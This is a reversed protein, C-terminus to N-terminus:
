DRLRQRSPWAPWGAPAPPAWRGPAAVRMFGRRQIQGTSATAASVAATRAASLKDQVGPALTAGARELSLWLSEPEWSDSDGVLVRAAERAVVASVDPLALLAAAEDRTM